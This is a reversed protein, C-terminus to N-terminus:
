FLRRSLRVGADSKNRKNRIWNIFFVLASVFSTLLTIPLYLIMIIIHWATLKRPFKYVIINGVIIIGSFAYTLALTVGLLVLLDYM